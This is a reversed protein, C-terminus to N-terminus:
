SCNNQRERSSGKNQKVTKKMYSLSAQLTLPLIPYSERIFRWWAIWPTDVYKQSREPINCRPEWNGTLFILTQTRSEQRQGTVNVKPSRITTTWLKSVKLVSKGSGTGLNVKLMCKMTVNQVRECISPSTCQLSVINENTAKKHEVKRNKWNTHDFIPIPKRPNRGTWQDHHDQLCSAILCAMSSNSPSQRPSRQLIGQTKHSFLILISTHYISSDEHM